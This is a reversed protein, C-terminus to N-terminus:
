TCHSISHMGTSRTLESLVGLFEAWEEVTIASGEFAERSVSTNVEPIESMYATELSHFFRKDGASCERLKAVKTDAMRERFERAKLNRLGRDSHLGKKRSDYRM